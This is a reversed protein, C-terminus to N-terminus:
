KGAVADKVLAELVKMDVDELKKVYVCGGDSKYKGLKKLHSEKKKADMMLYLTLAAKRPAFGVKFWEVQRGTNPSEYIMNGFGIIASGWLKPKEKTVKQILKVLALSDKRKTEDAIAGIFDDVSAATEKTKITALKKAM